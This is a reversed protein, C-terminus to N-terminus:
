VNVQQKMGNDINSLLLTYNITKYVYTSMSGLWFESTLYFALSAQLTGTRDEKWNPYSTIIPCYTDLVLSVWEYRCETYLYGDYVM